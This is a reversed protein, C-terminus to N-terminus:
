VLANHIPIGTRRDWVLNTERQNTIGIAKIQEATVGAKQMAERAVSLQTSWIEDGDHEVWGPKPYIQRFERQAITVINGARDFLIARASSTGEDLAMVYNEAM